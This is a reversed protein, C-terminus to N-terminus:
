PQTRVAITAHVMPAADISLYSALLKRTYSHRPTSVVEDAPGIEVLRGDQFVAIRDGVQAALAIDHTIFLLALNEGAVLSLILGVIQAQVRTDLASTAEDAILLKPGAALACAIAVRQKQGGSLQHPYSRAISRPDPLEVRAILDLAVAHAANWGKATHAAVVEAIQDGVRMLPDLSGSPDQFVFGIDKGNAPPHTLVPWQIAGTLMAAPPLLGGIALALSSKGSGSEGIVALREGPQLDLSIGTLAAVTENDRRYTVNLDRISLLPKM